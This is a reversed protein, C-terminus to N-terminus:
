GPLEYGSGLFDLNRSTIEMKTVKTLDIDVAKPRTNGLYDEQLLGLLENM